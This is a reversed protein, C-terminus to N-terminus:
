LTRHPAPGPLVVTLSKSDSSRYAAATQSKRLAVFTPITLIAHSERREEEKEKKKKRSDGEERKKREKRREEKKRDEERREEEEVLHCIYHAVQPGKPRLWSHKREHYEVTNDYALPRVFLSCRHIESEKRRDKDNQKRVYFIQCISYM